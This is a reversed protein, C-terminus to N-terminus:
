MYSKTYEWVKLIFYKHDEVVDVFALVGSTVRDHCEWNNREKGRFTNGKLDILHFLINPKLLRQLYTLIVFKNREEEKQKFRKIKDEKLSAHLQESLM